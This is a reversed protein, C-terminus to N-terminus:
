VFDYDPPNNEEQHGDHQIIRVGPGTTGGSQGGMSLFGEMAGVVAPLPVNHRLLGQILESQEGTLRTSTPSSTGLPMGSSPHQSRTPTLLSTPVDSATSQIGSKPPITSPSINNTQLNTDRPLLSIPSWDPLTDQHLLTNTDHTTPQHLPEEPELGVDAPHQRRIHGRQRYYLVALIVIAIGGAAGGIAAALTKSILV